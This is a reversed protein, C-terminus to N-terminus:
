SPLMAVTFGAVLLTDYVAFFVSPLQLKEFLSDDKFKHFFVILGQPPSIGEGDM